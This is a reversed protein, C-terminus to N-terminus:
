SFLESHYRRLNRESCKRRTEDTVYRGKKWGEQIYVDLESPHVRKNQTGRTIWIKNAGPNNSGLKAQTMKSKSEKTHKKGYFPNNEGSTIESLHSKESETMEYGYRPNKEGVMLGKLSKSLKARTEPSHVRGYMPNKDGALLGKHSRSMRMKTADSLKSGRINGQQGGASLNYYEDSEVAHLYAIAMIEENDLEERSFCPCLMRVSFNDWGYKNIAQKLLKGSGKYNPDFEESTHQGIYKHGNILNTTEYIYGYLRSGGKM